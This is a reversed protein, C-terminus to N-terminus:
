LCVEKRLNDMFLDTEEKLEQWRDKIPEILYLVKERDIERSINYIGKPDKKLDYVEALEGSEFPENLGVKYAVIYNEDRNSFWVRRNLMDPCGPGMYESLAYKRPEGEKLMSRGKFEKPIELGLVDFLTPFVDKSHQYTNIVQGKLGPHRLWMPIHYCEDDFCNVRNNHVPNFTYSSGHDAIVLITTNEWLGMKKLEECFKEIRYDSYRLSLLYLLSGKFDTGLEDAYEKLVRMEDDIVETNQTDYSFPSIDNHPEEVDFFFYFPKDSKRNRLIELGHEYIPYATHQTQWDKNKWRKRMLAFTTLSGLYNVWFLLNSSDKTKFYRSIGHFTRKVSPLNGFLNVKFNQRSWKDIIKGYKKEVYGDIFEPEIYTEIGSIEIKSLTNDAGALLLNDIYEKHNNEFQEQERKLAVYANKADYTELVKSHIAFTEPKNIADDLYRLWSEFLLSLRKTLLLYEDERLSREKVLEHYYKFMGGWESGWVFSSTYIQHDISENLKDGIIYFSYHFNYTEYGADHFAKWHTIPSTNCRFYYGFDDLCNRGTFLSRTAADTYPAHSYLKTTTISESKLSDLFPTPSIKAQNTEISNWTVSDVFFCVVNNKM